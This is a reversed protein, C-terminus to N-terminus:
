PDHNAGVEFMEALMDWKSAVIDETARAAGRLGGCVFRLHGDFRTGIDSLTECYHADFHYLTSSDANDLSTDGEGENIHTYKKTQLNTSQMAGPIFTSQENLEVAKQAIEMRHTDELLVALDMISLISERIPHLKSGLCAADRMSKVFTSHADALSDIDQSRSLDDHLQATLPAIVLNSLYSKLCNIFWLLKSRIGYYVAQSKRLHMSSESKLLSSQLISSARHTQLIFTFLVQYHEMSEESIVIRIPWSMRYKVIVTPLCERVSKRASAIDCHINEAAALVVRDSNVVSGFADRFAQTLLLSDHWKNNLLDLNNFLPWAFENLLSGDAMLFIHHLDSLVSSLGFDQFLVYRLQEAAYQHRREMWGEFGSSFVESFPALNEPNFTMISEFSFLSETAPNQITHGTHYVELHKLIGVTKGTAFIREVAPQIFSPAHLVGASSRRIAFQGHWVHSMPLQSQVEVIFFTRDNKPLIGEQMWQRIPRLYVQFCEFFIKGLFEYLLENSELQAICICDFLLELYRFPEPDNEDEFQLVVESLSCLPQLLPRLDEATKILSVVTDETIYVLKAEMVALQSNLTQLRKEIAGRFVQLLPLEQNKSIFKRLVHLSKGTGGWTRLLMQFLEWSAHPLECIFTPRYDSDYLDNNLGRLMFLVERLTQLESMPTRGSHESPAQSITTRWSQSWRIKDLEFTNHANVLLDAPRRPYITKISSPSTDESKESIDSYDSVLEDESSDDRFDVKRWLDRETDWGDEEAIERWSLPASSDENPPRLVATNEIKSHQFPRDALELIFHLIEPVFANPSASFSDLNQRLVDALGDRNLIRFREELGGLQHDVDFHNTRLFNHDRLNQLSSEKL